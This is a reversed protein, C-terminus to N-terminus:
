CCAPSVALVESETIFIHREGGCIPFKIVGCHYCVASGDLYVCNFLHKRGAALVPKADAPTENSLEDKKM